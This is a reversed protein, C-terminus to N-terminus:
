QATIVVELPQGSNATVIVERGRHTDNLSYEVPSGNLTVSTVTATTPLVYGIRVTYGGPATLKTSYSNGNQTAAVAITGDGVRLNDASLTPWTAPLQPIITLKGNPVDPRVGLYDYIVPWEVGYSSWAQMVMARGTFAQLYKYDPSDFLEPLAGPQETDLESAIFKLYRLSQDLRGYNAEAVAMVSTNLASAQRSGKISGIRAQQYFGTSGTFGTPEHTIPDVTAPELTAFATLAHNPTAFDTEMPTANIWFYQQLQTIPASGLAANPDTQVQHDLALSDAYLGVKADWWDDEFKDSLSGAKDRAWNATDSDGKSAAMDALDNLARITYVAVDLKEAGMGTAEVMGAGEPWGDNNTDLSTTIYNLGAKIFDYNEDRIKNDGSWRWLTAVATAFEATENVDGPQKNTGFYISGDTVIEHLVKGTKGNVAQSVARITRLHSAASEWQGAVTLPFVTYSGDTGFYWPYDPYGAGFGNLLQFEAIPPDYVTGEKTDRIEADLVTRRMDALSLKAWTFADQVTQDPIKADTLTLAQLREDIKQSLLEDPKDLGAFLAGYAEAKHVHTGAVAFWIKVKSGAAITLQWGLDGTAKKNQGIGLGSAGTFRVTDQPGQETSRAAVLAYWPKNPESFILGSIIPDFQVNDQQDLSDSTPKTGSWPYAPLIQSTAQFALTTSTSQASTNKIELGILVVPLDDPSFETRTVQLGATAPFSFQVFGPGSTFQQAEPLAAGGLLFSYSDLLKIPHSWVGGMTGTIHWGIGTPPFTGDQVGVVYARNGAAVYRKEALKDTTSRLPYNTSQQAPSWAPFAISLTLVALSPIRRVDM